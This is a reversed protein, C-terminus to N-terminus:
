LLATDTASKILPKNEWPMILQLDLLDSKYGQKERQDAWAFHYMYVTTVHMQCLNIPMYTSEIAASLM